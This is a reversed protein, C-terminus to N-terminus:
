SVPAPATLYRLVQTFERIMEESPSADFKLDKPLKKNFNIQLYESSRTGCATSREITEPRNTTYIVSGVGLPIKPLESKAKQIVLYFRSPRTGTVDIKPPSISTGCTMKMMKLLADSFDTKGSKSKGAICLISLDNVVKTDRDVSAYLPALLFNAIEIHLTKRSEATDYGQYELLKDISKSLKTEAIKVEDSMLLKSV